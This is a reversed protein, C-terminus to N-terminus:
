NNPLGDLIWPILITEVLWGNLSIGMADMVHDYDNNEALLKHILVGETPDGAVVLPGNRNEGTTIAEYSDLRIGGEAKEAGHCEVCSYQFAPLVNEAFSVRISVTISDRGVAGESDTATLTVQHIGAALDITGVEDGTGLYQGDVMWRLRAGLLQGEDPDSGKGKFLVNERFVHESGDAPSIILASPLRNVIAPRVAILVSASGTEGLDDTVVLAIRHVGIALDVEASAVAAV